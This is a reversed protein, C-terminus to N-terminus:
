VFEPLYKECKLCLIFAERNNKQLNSNDGM